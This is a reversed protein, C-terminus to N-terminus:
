GEFWPEDFGGLNEKEFRISLLSGEPAPLREADFNADFSASTVYLTNFGDGGWICSTPRQVPLQITRELKGEPSYRKICSDGFVTWWIYGDRDITAGDLYGKEITCFTRKNSMEGTNIDFDYADGKQLKSDTFYFTKNDIGWVPGNTCIISNVAKVTDVTLDTNLRYFCGEPTDFTRSMTGAYFRGSRDCKGDNFRFTKTIGEVPNPQLYKINDIDNLDVLGFGKAAFSVVLGGKKRLAFATPNDNFKYNILEKTEPTYKRLYVDGLDVYYLAKENINWFPGEGIIDQSNLLIDIKMNNSEMKLLYKNM